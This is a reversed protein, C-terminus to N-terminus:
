RDEPPAYRSHDGPDPRPARRPVPTPTPSAAPAVTREPARRAGAGTASSRVAAEQGDAEPWSADTGDVASPAAEDAEVHATSASGGEASAGPERLWLWALVCGVLLVATLGLGRSLPISTLYLALNAWTGGELSLLTGPVAGVVVLAATGVAGALAGRVLVVPLEQGSSAPRVLVLVVASAVYFPWPYLLFTGLFQGVPTAPFGSPFPVATFTVVASLLSTLGLAFQVVLLVVLATAAFLARDRLPAVRGGRALAAGISSRLRRQSRDAPPM